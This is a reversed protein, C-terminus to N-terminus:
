SERDGAAARASCRVAIHSVSYVNQPLRLVDPEAALESQFSM